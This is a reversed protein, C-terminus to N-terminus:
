RLDGSVAWDALPLFECSEGPERAPANAPVRVMGTGLAYSALDHSGKNPVPRVLARGDSFGIEAALFRDRGKAPPLSAVLEGEIAGHWFSDERGMLRRLYPRVFLWFGAMVSAPNGPLGFVIGNAHTAAVLPKGPQIAVSDFLVQCGAKELIEEAFDYEGMSVGGTLLLVDFQLGRTISEALASRDDPAIGLSTFELGLTNGSALLTDTNSDRLQGPEPTQEPPIVEDGTSLVAVRPRGIVPVEAYGHTAVLALAGPTLLAGAKLVAQGQELIEGRRRIHAGQSTRKSFRVESDGADSWEVQIVRDAGEPTAGTMIKTTEGLNLQPGPPDGAAITGVVPLATDLPVDGIVAYGDMASVDTGPVDVTAKLDAALVRGTALPRAIREEPMRQLSKELTEWAKKPDIVTAGKV